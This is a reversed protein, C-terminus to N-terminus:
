QKRQTTDIVPRPQGRHCTVCSVAQVADAKIVGNFQFYKKNIDNTMRMMKRAIEKEPKDDKEYKFDLVINKVHCFDCDVGLANSYNQMIKDLEPESINKQLVKLNKPKDQKPLTEATIGVFVFIVLASLVTIKKFSRM